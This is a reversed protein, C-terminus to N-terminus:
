KIEADAAIARIQGLKDYLGLSGDSHILYYEVYSDVTKYYRTEGGVKKVYLENEERTGDYYNRLMKIKGSKNYLSYEEFNGIGFGPIDGKWKGILNGSDVTKTILLDAFLYGAVEGKDNLVEYWKGSLKGVSVPAGKPLTKVIKHKTSPGARLNSNSRTVLITEAYASATVAVTLILTLVITKKM